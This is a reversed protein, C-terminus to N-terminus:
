RGYPPRPPWTSLPTARRLTGAPAFFDSRLPSRTAVVIHQLSRTTFLPVQYFTLSRGQLLVVLLWEASSAFSATGRLGPQAEGALTAAVTSRPARFSRPLPLHRPLAPRRPRPFLAPVRSFLSQTLGPLIECVCAAAPLFCSAHRICHSGRVNARRLNEGAVCAALCALVLFRVMAPLTVISM